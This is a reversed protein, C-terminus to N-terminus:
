KEVHAEFNRTIEGGAISLMEKLKQLPFDAKFRHVSGDGLGIIPASALVKKMTDEDPLFEDPKTWQVAFENPVNLLMITNSTGDTINRFGLGTRSRQGGAEPKKILDGNGRVGTKGVPLNADLKFVNPMQGILKRNAPSDWPENLQFQEYLKNEGLFPLIHVRWSLLPKGSDDSSHASPFTRYASQFNHMALAIQKTKEKADDILLDARDSETLMDELKIARSSDLRFRPDIKMADPNRTRRRSRSRYRQPSNIVEGGNKTMMKKLLESDTSNSISRVSGDCMAINATAREGFLQKVDFSDPSIGDDPKTWEIAMEDSTEFLYVTNSTGDTISGISAGGHGKGPQGPELVGSAGGIGRYVTMGEPANSMPSRYIKPMKEVLKINNPSDWPEDLRFQKYLKNQEIFPLVHVRWSLLKKGEKSVTYAAPFRMYASEHNLSALIQQRMNNMSEARRAATRTSQVAPLLAGIALPVGYGIDLSPITQHTELEIGEETQRIALLSPELHRHIVRARPLQIGSLVESVQAATQDPLSRLLDTSMSKMLSSMVQMYPYSIEFNTEADVYTMALLKAGPDDVAFPQNLFKLDKEALLHSAPTKHDQSFKLASEVAQPYLGIILQDSTICWSPEVFFGAERVMFSTIEKEAVEKRMFVPAYRSGRSEKMITKVIKESAEKLAESDKVTTTMTMGSIWGDGAGNYLTWSKGLNAIIESQLDIDTERKMDELIEYLNERGNSMLLIFTNFLGFGRRFDFSVGSAFLSDTPFKQLDSDSLGKPGSLDLLGEPRGDLKLFIRSFSGKNTLGSCSEFTEANGFGMAAIAALVERGTQRVIQTRIKSVNFYSLNSVHKVGRGSKFEQLWDPTAKAAMRKATDEVVNDGTAIFLKGESTSVVINVKEDLSITYSSPTTRKAVDSEAGLIKAIGGALSEAEKGADLILAAKIEKPEGNKELRLTEVFFCGRRRFVANALKPGIEHLLETRLKDEGTDLAPIMLGARTILDDIFTQVEPESMLRETASSNADYDYTKDWSVYAVCKQPAAFAFEDNFLTEQAFAHNTALAGLALLILVRFVRSARM